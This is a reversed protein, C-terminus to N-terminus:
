AAQAHHPLAPTKGVTAAFAEVRDRALIYIDKYPLERRMGERIANACVYEAATLFSLQMGNLLDRLHNPLKLGQEVLFLAKHTMKTLNCYYRPASKSGQTVAYAVFAAIVDTEHRRADKGEMRAQQWDTEAKRVMARRLKGFEKVLKRQGQRAQKGGIFPMAILFGDEDLNIARQQRNQDDVYFIPESELRDITGDAILSDLTRLVNKHQRGFEHAVTLSSVLAKGNKLTILAVPKSGARDTTKSENATLDNM